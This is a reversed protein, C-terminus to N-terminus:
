LAGLAGAGVPLDADGSRRAAVPGTSERVVLTPEVTVFDPYATGEHLRDLLIRVATEGMEHLPQRVTTLGPNHFGASLIDDFGVVSIDRPVRKGADFFARMAGIASVDNFAFLASFPVGRALLERGYKYGERYTAETRSSHEAPDEALQFVLRDDIELGLEGATTLISQWRYDTDASRAHGKFLAIREHGLEALHALALRAARDHDLVVNTVGELRAHGSVAVTPLGPERELATALLILGEVRRSRLLEVYEEILYPESQHSAVLSFYGAALVHSDLGSMVGAAYPEALEPVLVGLTHTRRSRLSRALHNPRYRLEEAAAFVLEQTRQPISDAVPARNLVVSVTTPSLGVHEALEKLTVPKAPDDGRRKRGAV